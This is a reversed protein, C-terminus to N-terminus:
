VRITKGFERGIEFLRMPTDVGLRFQILGGEEEGEEVCSKVFGLQRFLHITKKFSEKDTADIILVTETTEM